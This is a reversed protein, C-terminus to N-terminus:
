KLYLIKATETYNNKKLDSLTLEAFYFGAGVMGGRENRANWVLKQM